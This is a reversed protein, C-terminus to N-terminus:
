KINIKNPKAKPLSVVLFGDDYEASALESDIPGPIAVVTSFEGFRVEMQHYARREPKDPRSGSIVLYNDDLQVSFDQLRMGAIEVRVVYGTEIEYLDTPPSWVHSQMRVQWGMAEIIMRQKEPQASGQHTKRIVASM